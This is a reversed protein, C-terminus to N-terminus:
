EDCDVRVLNCRVQLNSPFFKDLGLPGLMPEITMRPSNTVLCVPVGVQQMRSLFALTGPLPQLRGRSMDLFVTDKHVSIREKEARSM